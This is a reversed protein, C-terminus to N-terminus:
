KRVLVTSSKRAAKRVDDKVKQLMLEMAIIADEASNHGADLKLFVFVM